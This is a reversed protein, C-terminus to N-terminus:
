RAEEAKLEDPTNINRLTKLESDFRAIEQREIKRLRVDDYFNLVRYNGEALMKEIFPLCSKQYIGHLPHYYGDIFPIAADYGFAADAIYGVADTHLYPMDCAAFFAYDYRASQLAAHIGALPGCQPYLDSVIKIEPIALTRPINSVVILERCVPVLKSLVTHLLDSGGWSLSAKDRGMRTSLGGALVVGAIERKM